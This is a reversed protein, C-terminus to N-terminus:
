QNFVKVLMLDRPRRRRGRKTWLAARHLNSWTMGVTTDSWRATATMADFWMHVVDIQSEEAGNGADSREGGRSWCRGEVGCCKHQRISAGKVALSRENM